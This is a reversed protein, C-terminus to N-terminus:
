TTKKSAKDVNTSKKKSSANQILRHWSPDSMSRRAAEHYVEMEEQSKWGCKKLFEKKTM